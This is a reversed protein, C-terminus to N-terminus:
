LAPFVAESGQRTQESRLLADAVLRQDMAVIQHVDQLETSVGFRKALLFEIGQDFRALDVHPQGVGPEWIRLLLPPLGRRFRQPVLVDTDGLAGVQQDAIMDHEVIMQGEVSKIYRLVVIPPQLIGNQDVLVIGAFVQELPVARPTLDLVIHELFQQNGVFAQCIGRNGDRLADVRTLRVLFGLSLGVIGPHGLCLALPHHEIGGLIRRPFALCIFQLLDIGIVWFAFREQRAQPVRGVQALKTWHVARDLRRGSRRRPRWSPNRVMLAKGPEGRTSLPPRTSSSGTLKATRGLPMMTICYLGSVTVRVSLTFAASSPPSRDSASRRVPGGTSVM